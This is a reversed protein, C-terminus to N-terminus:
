EVTAMVFRVLVMLTFVHITLMQRRHTTTVLRLMRAVRLRTATVFVMAMLTLM